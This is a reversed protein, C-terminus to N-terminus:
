AQFRQSVLIYIKNVMRSTSFQDICFFLMVFGFNTWVFFQPAFNLFVSTSLLKILILFSYITRRRLYYKIALHLSLFVLTLALVIGFYKFSLFFPLFETAVNQKHSVLVTHKSEFQAIWPPIIQSLLANRDSHKCVEQTSLNYIPIAVYALIWKMRIDANNYFNTFPISQPLNCDKGIWRETTKLYSAELLRSDDAGARIKGMFSFAAIAVVVLLGARAIIKGIKLQSTDKLLILTLASSTFLLMLRGRDMFFILMLLGFLVLGLKFKRQPIFFSIPIFTWVLMSIHRIRKQFPTFQQYLGEQNSFLVFGHFYLDLFCFLAIFGLYMKLVFLEQPSFIIKDESTVSTQKFFSHDIAFIVVAFFFILFPVNYFTDTYGITLFSILISAVLPLSIVLSKVYRQM